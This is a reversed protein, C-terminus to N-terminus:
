IPYDSAHKLSSEDLEDKKASSCSTHLSTLQEFSLKIQKAKIPFMQQRIQIEM